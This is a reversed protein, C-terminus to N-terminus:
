RAKGIHNVRPHHQCMWCSCSTYFPTHNVGVCSKRNRQGGRSARGSPPTGSPTVGWDSVLGPLAPLHVVPQVLAQQRNRPQKTKPVSGQVLMFTSFAGKSSSTGFVLCPKWPTKRVVLSMTAVCFCSAIRGSVCFTLMRLYLNRM